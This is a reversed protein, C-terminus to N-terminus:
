KTTDSESQPLDELCVQYSRDSLPKARIKGSKVWRKFTTASIKFKTAWRKPTDPESWPGDQQNDAEPRIATLIVKVQEAAKCTVEHFESIREWDRGWIETPLRGLENYIGSAQVIEGATRLVDAALRASDPWGCCAVSWPIPKSCLYGTPKAPEGPLTESVALERFRAHIEPSNELSQRKNLYDNIRQLAEDRYPCFAVFKSPEM